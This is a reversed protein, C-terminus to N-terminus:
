AVSISPRANGGFNCLVRVQLAIFVSPFRRKKPRREGIRLSESIGTGSALKLKTEVIPSTFHAPEAGVRVRAVPGFRPQVIAFPGARLHLGPKLLQHRLGVELLPRM